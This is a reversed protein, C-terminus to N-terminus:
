PGAPGRPWAPSSGSVAPVSSFLDGPDLDIPFPDDITLRNGPKVVTSEEYCRGSRDLRLVTLTRGDQDVIWYQPIGAIAYDHRKMVLDRGANGPSLVEVVLLVDGADIAQIRRDLASRRFVILDPIYCTRDDRVRVGFGVGSVILEEPAGTRVLDVLGQAARGHFTDAAPSVLLSGDLLEYRHGDDPLHPLDDITWPAGWEHHVLPNTMTMAGMRASAGVGHHTTWLGIWGDV